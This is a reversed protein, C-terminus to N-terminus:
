IDNLVEDALQETRFKSGTMLLMGRLKRNEEQVETLTELAKKHKRSLVYVEEQLANVRLQLVNNQSELERIREQNFHEM